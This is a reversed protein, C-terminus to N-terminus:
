VQDPDDKPPFILVSLVIMLALTACIQWESAHMASAIQGCLRDVEGLLSVRDSMTHAGYGRNGLVSSGETQVTLVAFTRGELGNAVGTM